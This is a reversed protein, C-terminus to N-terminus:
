PAITQILKQTIRMLDFDITAARLGSEFDSPRRVLARRIADAFADPGMDSSLTGVAYSNILRPLDGVPMAIVPCSSKMADSFIVPISEIRSPVLLYDTENLLKAAAGIDLYGTLSVPHGAACLAACRAKVLPELPGGGCIRVESIRAWDALELRTLSELLVDIGKNRHWRGLFTLRYPPATRLTKAVVPLARTSPLFECSGGSIETVDQCLQYGDAFCKNADRLVGRLVSRIGPLRGLSWIDSGLSWIYYPTGHQKWIRRAWYGSPLAWLAIVHTIEHEQVIREAAISGNRLTRFIACMDKPNLPNLQSLPLRPVPFRIVSLNRSPTDQGAATSPALVIVSVSRALAEAFDAVFSGAAESGDAVREPFSTSILLLRM